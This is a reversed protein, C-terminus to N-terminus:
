SWFGELRDEPEWGLLERSRAASYRGHPLDAVINIMEYPSPLSAAHLAARIARGSDQWSTAFGSVRGRQDPNVFHCFLLVPVELDYWEAFVRSIELGLYKTLFYLGRGPRPPSESSVEYDWDYGRPRPALVMGPGTQVVRRIGHAAAAAMINFAGETNVRFAQALDERVVTCNVIADMGECAALVANPDRLDVVQWEDPSQPVAPLPAGESQAKGEATIAEISRIDTLRLRYRGALERAAAAGVPGGAGFVVVRKIPRSPIPHGPALAERWSRGGEPTTSEPGAAPWVEHFDHVPKYGLRQIRGMRVKARDGGATVHIAWPSRRRPVASTISDLVRRLGDVADDVHVWRPDYPQSAAVADDVIEGFRVCAANISEARVCERVCLEAIWPSLQDLAPTPRPKWEEDVKWHAPLRDFLRLTSGTIFGKAGAEIAATVLQYTGRAANGISAGAAGTQPELPDLHIVADVDQLAQTVFAPDTLEGALCEVGSVPGPFAAAALRVTNNEKLAAAAARALLSSGTILLQM